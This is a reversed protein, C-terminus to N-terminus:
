VKVGVQNFPEVPQVPLEFYRAGVKACCYLVTLVIFACFLRLFGASINADLEEKTMGTSGIM